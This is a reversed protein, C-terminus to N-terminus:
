VPMPPEVTALVRHAHGRQRLLARVKRTTLIPLFSTIRAGATLAAFERAYLQAVDEFPVQAERALVEIDRAHVTSADAPTESPGRTMGDREQDRPLAPWARASSVLPWVQQQHPVHRTTPGLPRARPARMLSRQPKRGSSLRRSSARWSRDAQSPRHHM